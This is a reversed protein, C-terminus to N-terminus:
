KILINCLILGYASRHSRAPMTFIIIDCLVVLFVEQINKKKENEENNPPIPIVSIYKSYDHNIHIQTQVKKLSSFWLIPKM